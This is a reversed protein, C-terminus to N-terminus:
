VQLFYFSFIKNLALMYDNSLPDAPPPCPTEKFALAKCNTLTMLGIILLDSQM